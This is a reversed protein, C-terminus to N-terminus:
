VAQCMLSQRNKAMFLQGIDRALWTGIISVCILPEIGGGDLDTTSGLFSSSAMVLEMGM